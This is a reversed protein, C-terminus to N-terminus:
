PQFTEIPVEGKGLELVLRTAPYVSFNKREGSWLHNSDPGKASCAFAMVMAGHCREFPWLMLKLICLIVYAASMWKARSRLPLVLFKPSTCQPPFICKQPSLFRFNQWFHSITTMKIRRLPHLLPCLRQYPYIGGHRVKTSGIGRPM